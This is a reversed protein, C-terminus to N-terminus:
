KGKNIQLRFWRIVSVCEEVCWFAVFIEKDNLKIATPLGFKLVNMEKVINEKKQVLQSFNAGWLPMEQENIWKSEELHSINAWLGPKDTRRYFSLIRKNGLYVPTCTQGHLGTSEPPSFTRGGDESIAYHIELDKKNRLSHSWCVSLLRNNDIEILKQEWYVIDEATGDMVTTYEPWTRGCDYSRLIVAKMGSPNEGNWGKWTSTPLLYNKTKLALVPSCVEFSPGDLPPKIIDPATWTHGNDRSRILFLETPVFGGTEPNSLEQDTGSRLFCAGFGIIESDPTLSIRCTSSVFPNETKKVPLDGEFKWTKGSDTSRSYVPHCDVSDFASGLTFSALFDGNALLVLSPFYAHISQLHPKPNRYIFGTELIQIKIM